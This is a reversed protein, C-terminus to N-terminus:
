TVIRDSKTLRCMTIPRFRVYSISMQASVLLCSLYQSTVRVLISMEMGSRSCRADLKPRQIKDVVERARWSNGGDEAEM